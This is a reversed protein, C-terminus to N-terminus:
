QIAKRAAEVITPPTQYLKKVLSDLREASVPAIEINLKKAEAIFDADKMTADFAKRLADARDAPIDPPAAFPRAMEQPDILLALTQKQEDTKAIDTILPINSLDANKSRAAQVLIRVQNDKLYQAYSAKMTSWSIGCLGDLEGRQIALMIDATGHYGTVLKLKSQFVNKYMSAFIDPDAGPGEGGMNSPKDIMDQLTHISSKTSSICLSTDQTMSGLWNFKRGDFETGGTILPYIAMGRAFTGIATGDKPAASYIYAAARLSGAGTMNQPVITPNGPVHKGLHRALLRAYTDYGGGASYGIILNINKGKYFQELTQSQVPSAIAAASFLITAFLTSRYKQKKFMM